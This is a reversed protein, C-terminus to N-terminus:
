LGIRLGIVFSRNIITNNSQGQQQARTATDWGTIDEPNLGVEVAENGWVFPNLVQASIQLNSIKYKQLIKQPVNYALSINRLFIYTGNVYNRVYNYDTFSATTPRPYKANPNTPSWIDKEVRRGYTQLAGYYLNNVRAQLFFSFDFDNYNFTNTLGVIWDPRNSGLIKKDDDNIAGFGNNLYTVVEGSSLTVSKANETGSPVTVLEQDKIKVQGPIATINGVKKYIEILRADDENEQWLRDYEYDRFVAIPQGIYWGNAADDVKGDALEVIKEKNTSWNIDTKWSFDKTNINVSSISIEFGQNQTKGINALISNYGLPGPISRSMLLDETRARYLEVSGTIRNTLLSFDLGINQQITREWSLEKNPMSESKYGSYQTENFVYPASTISGSTSYASVSSNGTIGWSYRLKLQNIWEVNKIVTEENLKWALATSPFFKWKHEKALVSAGDWRGSITLLYKDKLAYNVRGMYSMLATRSYSTGYGMPKGLANNSLSYWKSSPFTIDQSRINIANRTNEASEQLATVGFRHIGFEKDFSLLNELTWTFAKSQQNYGILPATGVASFPNTYDPGFFSGYERNSYQVGFKLTYKLWPTFRVEAYTSSLLSHLLHENISNAINLLVNHTSLGVKNTNLINGNVDYASAYPMLALAQGYSDKAGSNSSNESTGYNQKSYVGNLALGVTLWKYPTIDGKINLSYREYDQDILTSEQDLYNLSLYLRSTESGSSLSLQHNQTLGVRTVLDRWKQDFMKEQIYVPVRDAYGKAKEEATADRLKITGDTNWEYATKINNNGYEEGGGFTLIDFDPDPATGYKGTYTGGNIYSQRKWDLLEGSGMWDTVSHIKSFTYSADYNISTKGKKGEKYNILIVGNAGRSGYIATASADKLVEVSVIDNPNIATVESASLPIGDVVYLPENSANISRNGRIRIQGVEGPRLNSTIDVGSMKGQLAQVVNQIPREKIQSESLQSLAGTLDGKRQTGYGVVVVQDLLNINETLPIVIVESSKEYINIEQSKYGLFSARITLPLSTVDFNFNGNEDTSTGQQRQESKVVVVAGVITERSKQDIVKGRISITQQAAGQLINSWLIFFLLVIPLFRKNTRGFDSLNTM